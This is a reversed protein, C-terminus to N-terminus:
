WRFHFHSILKGFRNALTPHAFAREERATDVRETARRFQRFSGRYDTALLHLTHLIAQETTAALLQALAIKRV